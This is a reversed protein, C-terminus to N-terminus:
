ELFEDFIGADVDLIYRDSVRTDIALNLMDVAQDEILELFYDVILVGFISAFPNILERM